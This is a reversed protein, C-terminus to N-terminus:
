AEITRLHAENVLCDDLGYLRAKRNYESFHAEVDAVSHLRPPRQIQATEVAYQMPGIIEEIAREQGKPAGLIRISDFIHFDIGAMLSVQVGEAFRQRATGAREQIRRHTAFNDLITVWAERCIRNVRGVFQTRDIDATTMTTAARVTYGGDASSGDDGCGSATAGYAVLAALMLLLM